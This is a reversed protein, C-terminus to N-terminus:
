DNLIINKGVDGVVGAALKTKADADSAAKCDAAGDCSADQGDPYVVLVKGKGQTALYNECSKGGCGAKM